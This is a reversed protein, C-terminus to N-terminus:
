QQIAPAAAADDDMKKARARVLKHSVKQEEYGDDYRLDYRRLARVHLASMYLHETTHVATSRFLRERCRAALTSSIRM